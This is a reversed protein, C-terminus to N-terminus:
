FYLAWMSTLKIPWKIIEDIKVYFPFQKKGFFLFIQVVVLSRGEMVVLLVPVVIVWAM